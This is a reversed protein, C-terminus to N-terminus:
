GGLVQKSDRKILRFASEIWEKIDIQGVAAPRNTYHDVDLIALHKTKAQSELDMFSNEVPVDISAERTDSRVQFRTGLYENKFILSIYINNPSDDVNFVPGPISGLLGTATVSAGAQEIDPFEHHYITRLGIRNIETIELLRLGISVFKDAMDIFADLTRQPKFADIGLALDGDERRRAVFKCNGQPYEFITKNPEVQRPILGPFIQEAEDWFQGTRDWWKYTGPVRIELIVQVLTATDISLRM